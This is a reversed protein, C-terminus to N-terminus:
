LVYFLRPGKFSWIMVFNEHTTVMAGVTGLVSMKHHGTTVCHGDDLRNFNHRVQWTQGCFILGLDKYYLRTTFTVCIVYEPENQICNRTDLSKNVSGVAPFAVTRVKKGRYSVADLRIWFHLYLFIIVYRVGCDFKGLSKREMWREVTWDIACLFWCVRMGTAYVSADFRCTLALFVYSWDYRM